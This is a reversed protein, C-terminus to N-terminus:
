EPHIPAIWHARVRLELTIEPFQALLAGTPRPNPQGPKMLSAWRRGMAAHQAESREAWGVFLNTRGPRRVREFFTGGFGVDSPDSYYRAKGGANGMSVMRM